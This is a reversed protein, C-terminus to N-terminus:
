FLINEDGFYSLAKKYVDRKIPSVENLLNDLSVFKYDKFEPIQTSVNVKANSKLKVVFYKQRQGIYPRKKELIDKPFDYSIWDPHESIIEVESTGIEEQLERFLAEKPTEGNSVEIGGQPFQWFGDIDIRHGILIECVQPYNSSLVIVAVNPRYVKEYSM